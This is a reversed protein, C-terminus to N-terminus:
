EESQKCWIELSSEEILSLRQMRESAEEKLVRRLTIQDRVAEYRVGCERAAKHMSKTGLLPRCSASNAPIQPAGWYRNQPKPQTADEFRIFIYYFNTLITTKIHRICLPASLFFSSRHFNPTAGHVMRDRSGYM